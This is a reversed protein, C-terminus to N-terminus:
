RFQVVRFLVQHSGIQLVDGDRAEMWKQPITKKDGIWTGYSSGLDRIMLCQGDPSIEFEAHVRSVADVEPEFILSCTKPDRGMILGMQDIPITSGEFPGSLGVLTFYSKKKEQEKSQPPEKVNSDHPKERIQSLDHQVMAPSPLAAQSSSRRVFFRYLWQRVRTIWSAKKPKFSSQYSLSPVQRIGSNSLSLVPLGLAERLEDISSYREEPHLAIAKMIADSLSSTIASGCLQSPTLPEISRIIREDISLPVEGTLLFYLTAGVGYIDTWPGQRVDIQTQFGTHSTPYQEIGAFGPTWVRRSIQSDLSRAAGFDMLKVEGEQTVFINQPKIDRHILNLQHVAAVGETLSDILPLVEEVSLKGGNIIRMEDLTHGELYRMVLYGTENEQFFCVVSVIRPHAHFKALSKAEHLFSIVGQKFADQGGPLPIITQQDHGREVLGMPFFEKIAVRMDLATDLALYTIGFGGRGLTRGLLYNRGLLTGSRLERPKSPIDSKKAHRGCQCPARMCWMCLQQSKMLSGEFRSSLKHAAQWAM